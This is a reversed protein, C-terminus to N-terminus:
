QAIKRIPNGRLTGGPHDVELENLGIAVRISELSLPLLEEYPLAALCAARKGRRWARFAYLLGRPGVSLSMRLNAGVALLLNARGSTQALSFALLASEGLQDAGYGTLVHWLDHQLASREAVWQSDADTGYSSPHKRVLELLKAPELGHHDLYARGFSGEPLLQLAQRDELSKLLLTREGFVRRGEPHSLLRVLAREHLDPDLADFVQNALDTQDPDAILARLARLARRWDPRIRNARHM